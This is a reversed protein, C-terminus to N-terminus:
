LLSCIIIVGLLGAFAIGLVFLNYAVSLKEAKKDNIERNNQICLLLDDIREEVFEKKLQYHFVNDISGARYNYLKPSMHRISYYTALFLLVLTTFFLIIILYSVCINIDSIYSKFHPIFLNFLAFTLSTQGILQSMKTEIVKQREGELKFLDELYKIHHPTSDEDYNYKKM